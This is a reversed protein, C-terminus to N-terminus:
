KKMTMCTECYNKVITDQTRNKIVQKTAKYRTKKGPKGLAGSKSVLQIM